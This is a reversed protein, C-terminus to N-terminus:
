HSVGALGGAGVLGVPRPVLERVQVEMGYARGTSSM